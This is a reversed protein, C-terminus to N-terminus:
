HRDPNTVQLIRRSFDRDDDISGNSQRRQAMFDHDFRSDSMSDQSVPKGFQEIASMERLRTDAPHRNKFRWLFFAAGILAALGVVGVVVGAAIAATNPGEDKKEDAEKSPTSTVTAVAVDEAATTSTGDTKTSTSDDSSTTSSSNNNNDNNNSNGSGFYPVSSKYGTLYLSYADSGGCMVSQWAACPTNCKDDSDEESSKEPLKDGCFCRNGNHLAFVAYEQQYCKGLCYGNSQYIYTGQDELPEISSFCGIYTEQQSGAFSSRAFLLVSTALVSSLSIAKM